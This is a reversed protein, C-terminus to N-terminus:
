RPCGPQACTKTPRRWVTSESWHKPLTLGLAEFGTLGSVSKQMPEQELARAAVQMIDSTLLPVRSNSEGM